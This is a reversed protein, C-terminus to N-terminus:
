IVAALAAGAILASWALSSVLPRELEGAGRAVAAPIAAFIAGMALLSLPPWAAVRGIVGLLAAIRPLAIADPMRPEVRAAAIMGLALWLWGPPYGGSPASFFFNKKGLALGCVGSALALQWALPTRLAAWFASLPWSSRPTKRDHLDPIGVSGAVLAAAAALPAWRPSALGIALGAAGGLAQGIDLWAFAAARREVTITDGICSACLDGLAPLGATILAVTAFGGATAINAGGALLAVLLLVFAILPRPWRTGLWAWLPKLLRLAALGLVAPQAASAGLWAWAALEAGGALLALRLAFRAEDPFLRPRIPPPPQIPFKSLKPGTPAFEEPLPV